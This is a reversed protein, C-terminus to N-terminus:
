VAQEYLAELKLRELDGVYNYIIKVDCVRIGNEKRADSVVIKDVLRLLLEPTLIEVETHRRILKAWASVCDANQRIAAVRMKLSEATQSREVREREYKEMLSRFATEPIVGTLRDEYLKALLKDLTVLREEHIKIENLYASRTTEAENGRMNLIAEVMRAEDCDVMRAHRRITGAVIEHLATENILHTTCAQKGSRAYNGCLYVAYKYESGDKRVRNERQYRMKFGCDACVPLGSFISTTGDRNKRPRYRKRDIIQVQEWLEPSIIPEHTNEVRIWEDKPKTISKQNKYSVTGVKGQVTNGIYVENRLIVKLTNDNWLHNVNQPNVEGRSRYYYDKPPIIGEENLLSAIALFGMGQARFEFIRRVTSVVNDDIILKHKDEPSKQYGYPAHSGLFKGSEAFM